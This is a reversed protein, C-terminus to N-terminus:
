PMAYEIVRFARRLAARESELMEGVLSTVREDDGDLAAVLLNEELTGAM